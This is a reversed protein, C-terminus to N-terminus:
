CNISDLNKQGFTSHIVDGSLHADICSVATQIGFLNGNMAM